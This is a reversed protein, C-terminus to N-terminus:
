PKPNEMWDLLEEPTLYRLLYDTWFGVMEDVDAMRLELSDDDGDTWAMVMRTDNLFMVRTEGRDGYMLAMLRLVRQQKADHPACKGAHDTVPDYTPHHFGSV